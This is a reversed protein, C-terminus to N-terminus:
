TQDRDDRPDENAMADMSSRALLVASGRIPTGTLVSARWNLPRDENGMVFADGRTALVWDESGWPELLNYPIVPQNPYQGRADTLAELDAIDRIAGGLLRAQGPGILVVPYFGPKAKDRAQKLGLTIEQTAREMFRAVWEPLDPHPGEFAPYEPKAQKTKTKPKM